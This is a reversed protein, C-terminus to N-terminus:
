LVTPCARESGPGLHIGSAHHADDAWAAIERILQTGVGRRKGNPDVHINDLLTGWRPDEDGFACAFGVIRGDHAAVITHQGSAPATLRQQWVAQRNLFVDGDLYEDSYMGRYAVRWSDAHLRAISEIDGENAGRLIM